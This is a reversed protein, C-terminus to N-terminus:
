PARRQLNRASPAKQQVLKAYTDDYAKFNKDLFHAFFPQTGADSVWRSYNNKWVGPLSAVTPNVHYILAQKDDFTFTEPFVVYYENFLHQDREEPRAQMTQYIRHLVGAKAIYFGSNPFAHMMRGEKFAPEQRSLLFAQKWQAQPSISLWGEKDLAKTLRVLHRWLAMSKGDYAHRKKGQKDLLEGPYYYHQSRVGSNSPTNQPFLERGIIVTNPDWAGNKLMKALADKFDLASRMPLIDRSDIVVVIKDGDLSQLYKDISPIVQATNVWSDGEGVFVYEYGYADLRQKLLQVYKHDSTNEYAIILPDSNAACLMATTFLGIAVCLMFRLVSKM